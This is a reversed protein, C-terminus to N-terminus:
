IWVMSCFNNGLISIVSFIVVEEFVTAKCRFKVTNFQELGSYEPLQKM